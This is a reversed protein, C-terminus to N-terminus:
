SNGSGKSSQLSLNFDEIVTSITHIKKKKKKVPERVIQYKQERIKIQFFQKINIAKVDSYDHKGSLSCYEIQKDKFSRHILYSIQKMKFPKRLATQKFCIDKLSKLFHSIHFGIQVIITAERHCTQTCKEELTGWHHLLMFICGRFGEPYASSM